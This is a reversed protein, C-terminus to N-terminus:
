YGRAQVFVTKGNVCTVVFGIQDSEKDTIATVTRPGTDGAGSGNERTGCTQEIAVALRNATVKANKPTDSNCGAFAIAAGFPSCIILVPILGKM